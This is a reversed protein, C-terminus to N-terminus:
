IMVKDIPFTNTQKNVQVVVWAPTIFVSMPISVKKTGNCQNTLQLPSGAVMIESLVLDELLYTVLIM